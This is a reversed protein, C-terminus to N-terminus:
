MVNQLQVVLAHKMLATHHRGPQSRGSGHIRIDSTSPRRPRRYFTKRGLFVLGPSRTAVMGTTRIKRGGRRVGAIGLQRMLREVTCRAVASCQRNLERWVKFAGYVEYNAKLVRLIEPKLQM